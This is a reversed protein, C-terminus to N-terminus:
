VVLISSHLDTWFAVHQPPCLRITPRVSRFRDLEMFSNKGVPYDFLYPVSCECGDNDAACRAARISYSSCAAIRHATPLTFIGRRVAEGGPLSANTGPVM